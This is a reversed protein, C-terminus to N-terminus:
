GRGIMLSNNIFYFQFNRLHIMSIYWLFRRQLKNAGQVNLKMYSMRLSREMKKPSGSFVNHRLECTKIIKPLELKLLYKM